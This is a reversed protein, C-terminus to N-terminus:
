RRRDATRPDIRCGPDHAAVDLAFASTRVVTAVVRVRFSLDRLEARVGSSGAAAVEVRIPTRSTANAWLLLASAVFVAPFLVAKTVFATWFVGVYGISSFWAWDVVLGGVRMLAFLLVIFAIVAGIPKWLM